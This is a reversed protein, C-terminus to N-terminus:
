YRDYYDSIKMEQIINNDSDSRKIKNMINDISDLHESCISKFLYNNPNNNVCVRTEVKNDINKQYWVVDDYVCEIPVQVPSIRYFESM